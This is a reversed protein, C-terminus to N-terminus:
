SQLKDNVKDRTKDIAIIDDVFLIYWSVSSYTTDIYGDIVSLYFYALGKYFGWSLQSYKSDGKATKNSDQSLYM